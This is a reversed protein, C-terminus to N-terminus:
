SYSARPRRSANEWPYAVYYSVIFIALGVFTVIIETLGKGSRKEETWFRPHINRHSGSGGLGVGLIAWMFEWLHDRKM